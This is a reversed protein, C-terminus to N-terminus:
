SESCVNSSDRSISSFCSGALRDLADRLDNDVKEHAEKKVRV